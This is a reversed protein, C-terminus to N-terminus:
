YITHEIIECLYDFNNEGAYELEVKQSLEFNLDKKHVWNQKEWENRIPVLIFSDNGNEYCIQCFLSSKKVLIGILQTVLWYFLKKM